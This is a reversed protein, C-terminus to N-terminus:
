APDKSLTFDTSSCNTGERAGAGGGERLSTLYKTEEVNMLKKLENKIREQNLSRLPGVNESDIPSKKAETARIM